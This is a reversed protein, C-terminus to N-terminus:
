NFLEVRACFRQFGILRACPENLGLLRRIHVNRGAGLFSNDHSPNSLRALLFSRLNAVCVFVITISTAFPVDVKSINFVDNAFHFASAESEIVSQLM